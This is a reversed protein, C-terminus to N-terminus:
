YFIVFHCQSLTLSKTTSQICDIEQQFFLTTVNNPMIARTLCINSSHAKFLGRFYIKTIQKLTMMKEM